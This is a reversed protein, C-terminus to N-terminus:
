MFRCIITNKLIIPANIGFFTGTDMAHGGFLVPTLRVHNADSTPHQWASSNSDTGQVHLQHWRPLCRFGDRLIVGYKFPSVTINKVLVQKTDM